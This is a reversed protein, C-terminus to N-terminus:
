QDEATLEEYQYEKLAEKTNGLSHQGRIPHVTYADLKIKTNTRILQKAEDISGDLWTHHDENNLILPM